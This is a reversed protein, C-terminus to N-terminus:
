FPAGLVTRAQLQSGTLARNYIALKRVYGNIVTNEVGVSVAVPAAWTQVNTSKTPANGNATVYFEGSKFSAGFRYTSNATFTLAQTAVDVVGPFGAKVYSAGFALTPIASGSTVATNGGPAQPASVEGIVAINPARYAALAPGVIQVVDAARSVPSAATPIYSTPFSGAELQAGWVYGTQGSPSYTTFYGSSSGAFGVSMNANTKGTISGSLSVRYWSNPYATISYTAGTGVGVTSTTASALTADFVVGIANGFADANDIAIRFYRQTGAKFFATGTVTQGSSVTHAQYLMQFVSAGTIATWLQANSTGDPSVTTGSVIPKSAGDNPTWAANTFDQSYATLNTRAEEVRFGLPAHSVPDNDFAPGYYAAAQTIVQDGPRPSTEYTVASVSANRLTVDTATDGPASIIRVGIVSNSIKVCYLTPTSTLTVQNSGSGGFQDIHVTGSGSLVVAFIATTGTINVNHTLAGNAGVGAGFSLVSGSVSAGLSASWAANSFDNSYTLLNNPAYTIAGTADTITRLSAGSYTYNAPDLVGALFNSSVAPPIGGGFQTVFQGPPGAWAPDLGILCWVAILARLALFLRARM